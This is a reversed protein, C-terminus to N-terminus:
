FTERNLMHAVRRIVHPLSHLLNQPLRWPNNRRRQLEDHLGKLLQKEGETRGVLTINTPGNVEQNTLIEFRPIKTLGAQTLATRTRQRLRRLDEANRITGRELSFMLAHENGANQYARVLVPHLGAHTGLM